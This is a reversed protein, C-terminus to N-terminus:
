TKIIGGMCQLPKSADTNKLILMNAAAQANLTVVIGGGEDVSQDDAMNGLVSVLVPQEFFREAMVNVTSADTASVILHQTGVAAPAYDAANIIPQAGSENRRTIPFGPLLKGNLRLSLKITAVSM